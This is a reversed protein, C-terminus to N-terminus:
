LTISALVISLALMLVGAMFSWDSLSEQWAKTGGNRIATYSTIVSTLLLFAALWATEDAFSSSNLNAIKLGSIIVFCIGLLNSAANLIHPHRHM